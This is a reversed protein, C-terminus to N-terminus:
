LKRYIGKYEEVMTTRLNDCKRYPDTIFVGDKRLIRNIHNLTDTVANKDGIYGLTNNISVIDFQTDNFNKVADQIRSNWHSKKQNNYTQKLFDFIDDNVRFRKYSELGYKEGDDKIFSGKAYSPLAMIPNDFYSQELLKRDSPKSQLDVIHLELASELPSDKILSKIVALLSFPEQSNGIGAILMRKPPFNIKEFISRLINIVDVFEDSPSGYFDGRRFFSSANVNYDKALRIYDPHAKYSIQKKSNFHSNNFFEVKM